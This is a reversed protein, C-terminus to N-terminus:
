TFLVSKDVADNKCELKATVYPWHVRKAHIVFGQMMTYESLEFSGSCIKGARRVLKARLSDYKESSKGDVRVLYINEALTQESYGFSGNEPHGSLPIYSSCGSHLLISLIVVFKHM